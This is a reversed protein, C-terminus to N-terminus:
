TYRKYLQIFVGWIGEVKYVDKIMQTIPMECLPCIRNLYWSDDLEVEYDEPCFEWEEKCNKCIYRNKM